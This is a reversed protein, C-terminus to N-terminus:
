SVSTSLIYFIGFGFVWFTLVAIKILKSTRPNTKKNIMVNLVM